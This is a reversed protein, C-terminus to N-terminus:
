IFVDACLLERIDLPQVFSVSYCLRPLLFTKL